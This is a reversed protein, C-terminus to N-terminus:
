RRSRGGRMAVETKGYGVDGCLLGTWRRPADGHGEQHRRVRLDSRRDARLSPARSSKRGIPTPRRICPGPVAKRQAYLKLLEEAMDRM